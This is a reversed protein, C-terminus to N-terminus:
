KVKKFHLPKIKMRRKQEEECEKLKVRKFSELIRKHKTGHKTENGEM